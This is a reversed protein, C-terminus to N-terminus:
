TELHTAGDQFVKKKSPTATAADTELVQVALDEVPLMLVMGNRPTRTRCSRGSTLQQRLDISSLDEKSFAGIFDSEGAASVVM